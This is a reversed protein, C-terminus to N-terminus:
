AVLRLLFKEIERFELRRVYEVCHFVIDCGQNNVIPGTHALSSECSVISRSSDEWGNYSSWSMLTHHHAHSLLVAIHAILGLALTTDEGELVGDLLMTVFQSSM